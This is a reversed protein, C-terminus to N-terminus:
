SHIQLFCNKIKTDWGYKIHLDGHLRYQHLLQLIGKLSSNIRNYKFFLSWNKVMVVMMMSKQSKTTIKRFDRVWLPENYVIGYGVRKHRRIFLLKIVGFLSFALVLFCIIFMAVIMNDLNKCKM